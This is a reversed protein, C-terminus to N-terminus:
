LFAQLETSSGRMEAGSRSRPMVECEFTMMSAQRGNAQISLNGGVDASECSSARAMSFFHPPTRLAVAGRQAVESEDDGAELQLFLRSDIRLRPGRTRDNIRYNDLFLIKHTMGVDWAEFGRLSMCSFAPKPSWPAM